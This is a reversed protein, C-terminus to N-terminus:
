GANLVDAAVSEEAADEEWMRLLESWASSLKADIQTLYGISGNPYFKPLTGAKGEDVQKWLMLKYTGFDPRWFAIVHPTELEMIRKLDAVINTDKLKKRTEVVTRSNPRLQLTFETAVGLLGLGGVLARVEKAGRETESDSVIVEGGANVWKVKRVLDGLSGVTGGGSGHASAMIVGGVTLNAYISLAGAPASMGAAEMGNVLGLLTMGAEVTMRWREVDVDVVRNMEHLLLTVSTSVSAETEGGYEKKSSGRVGSCVFGTSSHFGRRTARIKVREYGATIYGKIVERVEETSRPTVHYDSTCKLYNDSSYLTTDSDVHSFAESVGGAAFRSDRLVGGGDCSVVVTCLVAMVMWLM